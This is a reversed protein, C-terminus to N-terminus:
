LSSGRAPGTEPIAQLFSTAPFIAHAQADGYATVIRQNANSTTLAIIM